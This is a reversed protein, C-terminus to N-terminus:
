SAISFKKLQEVANDIQKKLDSIRISTWKMEEVKGETAQKAWKHELNLKEQVVQQLTSM